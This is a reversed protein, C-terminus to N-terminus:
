AMYGETRAGTLFDVKRCVRLTVTVTHTSQISPGDDMLYNHKWHTLLIWVMATFVHDASVLMTVRM